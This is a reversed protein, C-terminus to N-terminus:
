TPQEGVTGAKESRESNAVRGNPNGNLRSGGALASGASAPPERRFPPPLWDAVLLAAAIVVSVAFLMIDGATTRFEALSRFRGDFGRCRMAQAVREAREHSRVLLSGMVNGVTRYGHVSVRTRFGRARLALRLRALERAVVFVYRHTLLVLQVLLGPVRLAHAARLTDDLPATAVLVLLITVVALGRAVLRLGALTGRLSLTLPGIQWGTDDPLLLPLSVAFLALFLLVTGARLRYWRWPLRALAALLLAVVLATLVAPLTRLAAVTVALLTLSVLKWRPDLRSLFSDPCPLPELSFSM